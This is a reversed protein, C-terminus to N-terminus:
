EKLRTPLIRRTEREFLLGNSGDIVNEAMQGLKTAIVPTKTAFAEDIILPFDYWLSPVVLIDIKSFVNASEDHAYTGCFEVNGLGNALEQLKAGYVPNKQLNGYISLSIRERIVNELQNVAELLLHIGKSHIIQGIFGIRIKKSPLKGTYQEMWSLDHGYPHLRIPDDFGAKFHVEKVFTSATLRIDPLSFVDRLYKKREAMDGVIGRFGPRRSILPIKSSATLLLKTANEPLISRPWQYVKANRANCHLCDWPTTIGDCNEGDSRLLNIKPCLFWFDTISLVLPVQHKKM